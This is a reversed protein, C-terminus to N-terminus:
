DYIILWLELLCKVTTVKQRSGCYCKWNHLIIDSSKFIMSVFDILIKMACCQFRPSEFLKNLEFSSIRIM